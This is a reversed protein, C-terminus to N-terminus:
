FSGQLGILFYRGTEESEFETEGNLATKHKEKEGDLVNQVELFLSANKSVKQRIGIDLGVPIEEVESSGDPNKDKLKDMFKSAVTFTTGTAALEYDIGVNAIWDPQKRLRRTQGSQDEIESDHLSQNAWLTLGRLDSALMEFDLRQEFEVGRLWGDGVNEVQYLDKGGFDTGTDVEEIVGKLDKHSLSIGLLLDDNRWTAGLDFNWSRAPELNPNGQVFRDGKDENWPALEDFKPRNVSRSAAAHFALQESQRYLAHMSPNLDRLTEEGSTGDGAESSREVHEFRLGPTLTFRETLFLSDQVFLALYDEEMEYNDKPKTKDKTTGDPKIETKTKNRYRERLRYAYGLKLEQPIGLELPVTLKQRIQWYEDEKDEDEVESKDLVGGKFMTKNKAKDETTAYYDLATELMWANGFVHKNELTAGYTDQQKIEDELELDDPKGPKTKRKTKHKKEELTLFMPRFHFESGDGYFWAFDGMMNFSDTPKHEDEFESEKLSGDAKYKHKSKEKEISFRQYDLFLNYGFSENIRDGLGLSLQGGEDGFGPRDLGDIGGLAGRLDLRFERPIERPEALVKGAIGDSEYEATPNRLIKIKGFALPSLRNVQFERKEGGGPLQVGGLEFRTFEKDMGRLRIDKNEGPAGGMFVGPLRDIVDGLRDANARKKFEQRTVGTMPAVSEMREREVASRGGGPEAKARIEIVDAATNRNKKQTKTDAEEQASASGSMFLLLCIAANLTAMRNRILTRNIM